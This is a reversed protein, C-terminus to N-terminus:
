INKDDEDYYEIVDYDTIYVYIRIVGDTGRGCSIFGSKVNIDVRGEHDPDDDKKFRVGLYANVYKGDVDKSTITTSYAIFENKSGVRNGWVTMKGKVDKWTPEHVKKPESNQQTRRAM